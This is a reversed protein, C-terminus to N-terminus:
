KSEKLRQIAKEYMPKAFDKAKLSTIRKYMWDFKDKVKKYGVEKTLKDIFKDANCELFSLSDADKLISQEDTGGEEHKLILNYVKDALLFSVGNQLLFKKIIEAGEKQHAERLDKDQFGDPSDKVIQMTESKSFAREIDHAYGAIKLYIPANPYLKTIWYVTKEYHPKKQGYSEDVFTVVKRYLEKQQRQVEEMASRRPFKITYGSELKLILMPFIDRNLASTKWEINPYKEMLEELEYDSTLEIHDWSSKVEQKPKPEIVEIVNLNDDKYILPKTLKIVAVRRNGVISESILNGYKFFDDRKKQYDTASSAQYGIHDLKFKDINIGKEEIKPFIDDLFKIITTRLNKKM